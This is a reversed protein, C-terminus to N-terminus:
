EDDEEGKAGRRCLDGFVYMFAEEERLEQVFSRLKSAVEEIHEILESVDGIMESHDIITSKGLLVRTTYLARLIHAFKPFVESRLKQCLAYDPSEMYKTPEAKWVRNEENHVTTELDLVLEKPTNLWGPPKYGSGAEM